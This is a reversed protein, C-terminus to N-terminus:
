LYNNSRRNQHKEGSTSLISEEPATTSRAQSIQMRNAELHERHEEETENNRLNYVRRANRM